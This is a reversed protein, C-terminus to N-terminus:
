VNILKDFEDRTYQVNTGDIIQISKNRKMLGFAGYKKFTSEDQVLSEDKVIVRLRTMCNTVGEINEIGGLAELYGKAKAPVGGSVEIEGKPDNETSEGYSGQTVKSEQYEKKSILKAEEDLEERGPTKLDLKLILYRFVIFWIGSFILGVAIQLLYSKWHSVGLPLWNYSIWGILGGTFHGTIGLSYTTVVLLAAIVAHM